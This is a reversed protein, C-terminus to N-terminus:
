NSKPSVDWLRAMDWPTASCSSIPSSALLPIPRNAALSSQHTLPNTRILPPFPTELPDAPEAMVSPSGFLNLQVLLSEKDSALESPINQQPDKQM